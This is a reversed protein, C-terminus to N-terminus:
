GVIYNRPLMFFTANSYRVAAYQALQRTLLSHPQASFRMRPSPAVVFYIALPLYVFLRLPRVHVWQPQEYIM